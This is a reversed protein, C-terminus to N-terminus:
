WVRLDGDDICSGPHLRMKCFSESLDTQAVHRAWHQLEEDPLRMLAEFSTHITRDDEGIGFDITWGGAKKLRGVTDTRKIELGRRRYEDLVSAQFRVQVLAADRAAFARSYLILAWPNTEDSM